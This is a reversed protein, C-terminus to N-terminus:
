LFMRKVQLAQKESNWKYLAIFTNSTDYVRILSTQEGINLGEVSNESLSNGNYLLREARKKVVAKPYDKFITELDKIYSEVQFKCEELQSLTISEELTYSGVKTRLLSGMHAGCGLKAGIDTCLTRIYTGKSCHVLIKFRSDDIWETIVCSYITIDRGPRDIVIGKRAFEYM